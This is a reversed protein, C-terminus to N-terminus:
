RHKRKTEPVNGSSTTMAQDSGLVVQARRSYLGAATVSAQLPKKESAPTPGAVTEAISPSIVNGINYEQAKRLLVEEFLDAFRADSQCRNQGNCYGSQHMVRLFQERDFWPVDGFVRCRQKM